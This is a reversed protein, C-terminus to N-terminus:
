RSRCPAGDCVDVVAGDTRLFLSKQLRALRSARPHGHPDSGAEPPINGNPPTPTGSDWYVFGSGDWSGSFTPIGWTPDVAWHRGPALYGVNTAAGITRAEVEAAVNAVQHDGFAVHM